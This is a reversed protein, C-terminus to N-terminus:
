ARYLWVSRRLEERQRPGAGSCRSRSRRGSVWTEAMNPNCFFEACKHEMTELVEKAQWDHPLRLIQNRINAVTCKDLASGRIVSLRSRAIRQGSKTM